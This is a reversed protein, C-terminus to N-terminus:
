ANTLADELVDDGNDDDHYNDYYDEVKTLADVADNGDDHEDDDHSQGVTRNWKTLSSTQYRDHEFYMLWQSRLLFCVNPATM